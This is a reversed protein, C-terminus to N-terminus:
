GLAAQTVKDRNVVFTHRNREGAREYIFKDVGHITLYLGLGGGNPKPKPPLSLDPPLEQFPAYPIGTDEIWITLVREDFEAQLELVGSRGAEQYGHTIINTAIEDVSRRLKHSAKEDLGATAAAELVYNAIPELSDLTDLVTLQEM